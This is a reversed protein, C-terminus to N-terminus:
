STRWNAPRRRDASARSFERVLPSVRARARAAILQLSSLSSNGQRTRSEEIYESRALTFSRFAFRESDRGRRSVQREIRISIWAGCRRACELSAAPKGGAVVIMVPSPHRRAFSAVDASSGLRTSDASRRIPPDAARRSSPFRFETSVNCADRTALRVIVLASWTM